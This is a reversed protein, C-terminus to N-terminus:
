LESYALLPWYRGAGIDRLRLGRMPPAKDNRRWWHILTQAKGGRYPLTKKRCATMAISDSEIPPRLHHLVTNGAQGAARQKKTRKTRRDRSDPQDGGDRRPRAGTRKRPLREHQVRLSPDAVALRPDNELVRRKRVFRHDLRRMRRAHSPGIRRLRDDDRGIYFHRATAAPGIRRRPWRTRRM